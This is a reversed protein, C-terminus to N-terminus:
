GNERKAIEVDGHRTKISVTAGGNNYKARYKVPGSEIMELELDTEFSGGIIEANLDFASDEDAFLKVAGATSDLAIEGETLDEMILQIGGGISKAHIDASKVNTMDINGGITSASISGSVNSISLNGGTTEGKLKEVKINNVTANGSGVEVKVDKVIPPVGISLSGGGSTLNLIGEEIKSTRRMGKITFERGDTNYVTVSGGVQEVKLKEIGDADISEDVYTDAMTGFGTSISSKIKTAINDLFKGVQMSEFVQGLEQTFNQFDQAFDHFDPSRRKKESKREKEQSESVAKILREAEEITITGEKLMELIKVIEETM